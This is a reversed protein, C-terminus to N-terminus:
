DYLVDTKNSFYFVVKWSKEFPTGDGNYEMSRPKEKLVNRKFVFIFQVTYM